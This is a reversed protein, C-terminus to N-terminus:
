REEGGAFADAGVGNGNSEGPHMWDCVADLLFRPMPTAELVVEAGNREGVVLGRDRLRGLHRAVTSQPWGLEEVLEHQTVGEREALLCTLRLRDPHSLAKFVQSAQKLEQETPQHRM